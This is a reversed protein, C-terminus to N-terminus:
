NGEKPEVLRAAYLLANVLMRGTGFDRPTFFVRKGRYSVQGGLPHTGFVVVRGKGCDGALIAAPTRDPFGMDYAGVVTCGQGPVMIPGNGFHMTITEARGDTVYHPKLHVKLIGWSWFHHTKYDLVGLKEAFYAGQCSGVYGGGNRVYQVLAQHQEPEVQYRPGEPFYIVAFRSLDAKGLDEPRIGDAKIGEPFSFTAGEAGGRHHLLRGVKGDLKQVLARRAALVRDDEALRAALATLRQDKQAFSTTLFATQPETFPRSYVAVEDVSIGAEGEGGITMSVPGRLKRDYRAQAKWRGNHHLEILQEERDWTLLVHNWQGQKVAGHWIILERRWKHHGTLVFMWRVGKPSYVFRWNLDEPGAIALVTREPQDATQPFGPRFRLELSGAELSFVAGLKYRLQTGKGVVLAQSVDSADFHVNDATDPALPQGALEAATTGDFGARFLPTAHQGEGGPQSAAGIAAGTALLSLLTMMLLRRPSGM